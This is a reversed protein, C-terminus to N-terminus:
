TQEWLRELKVGEVESITEGFSDLACSIYAENIFLHILNNRYYALMMLNKFDKKVRVHSSFVDKKFDLFKNLYQLSNKIITVSPAVNISM